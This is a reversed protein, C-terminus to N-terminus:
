ASAGPDPPPAAEAPAGAPRSAIARAIAELADAQKKASLDLRFLLEPTRKLALADSIQHRIHRAAARLGHLTLDQKSAPYVSVVLTASRLDDSVRAGTVTILGEIRPDQLGRDIVAQVADRLASAVQDARRTM